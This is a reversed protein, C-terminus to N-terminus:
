LATLLKLCGIKQQFLYVGCMVYSGYIRRINGGKISHCLTVNGTLTRAFFIHSCPNLNMNIHVLASEEQEKTRTARMAPASTAALQTPVTRLVITEEQVASMLIQCIHISMNSVALIVVHCICFLFTTSIQEFEMSSM